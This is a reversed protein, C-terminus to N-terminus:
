RDRMYRKYPVGELLAKREKAFRVAEEIEMGVRTHKYLLYDDCIGHRRSQTLTYRYARRFQLEDRICGDFYEKGKKDRFFAPWRAPLLDNVMKAVSGHLRQMLTKLNLGIELYGLTHYHNDVLSTVIPEFGTAQTYLEFRDWFVAKAEESAFAPFQERCRATIFYIQNDVYWHEYRHKGQFYENRARSSKAIHKSM